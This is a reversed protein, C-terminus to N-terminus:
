FLELESKKKEDEDMRKKIEDPAPIMTCDLREVPEDTILKYTNRTGRGGGKVTQLYELYVLKRLAKKISERGTWKVRARIDQQTVSVDQARLKMKEALRHIMERVEEYLRVTSEPLEAFTSSLVGKVMINYAVGYDVLDCEIYEMVGGQSDEKTKVEKQYQRVFCTCAILDMFRDNDRRTRILQVPFDLYNGFPNIILINRLLRQAAKHKKIIQPIAHKKEYYRNLTYKNRQLDHIKRTQDPTEDANIVFCRSANEPNIEHRTSSMVLAIVCETTLTQATMKGTKEDKVTVIRALRHDSLMDRIQHEIIDSHVAEGLILFKHLLGGDPIYNLAQDSLSTVALVDEEPM